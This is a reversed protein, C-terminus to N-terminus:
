DPLNGVEFFDIDDKELETIIPQLVQEQFIHEEIEAVNPLELTFGLDGEKLRYKLRVKIEVMEQQGRFVNIGLTLKEPVSLVGNGATTTTSYEFAVDGNALTRESRFTASQTARFRTVLELLDSGSPAVLDARRDELFSSLVQQSVPRGHIGRWAEYEKTLVAELYVRHAAWGPTTHSCHDDLIVLALHEHPAVYGRIQDPEADGIFARVYRIFDGPKNFTIDRRVRRPAKQFAEVDEVKWGEPVVICGQGDVLQAKPEPTTQIISVPPTEQM